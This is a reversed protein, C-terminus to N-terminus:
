KLLGFVILFLITFGVGIGFIIKGGKGGSSLGAKMRLFQIRVKIKINSVFQYDSFEIDIFVPM